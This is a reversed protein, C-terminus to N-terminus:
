STTLVRLSKVMPNNGCDAVDGAVVAGVVM